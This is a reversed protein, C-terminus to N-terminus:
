KAIGFMIALGQLGLNGSTSTANGVDTWLQGEYGLRATLTGNSYQLGIGVEGISVQGAQNRHDDHTVVGADNLTATQNRSGFLVSGRGNAYFALGGDGVPRQWEAAVTPGFGNFDHNHVLSGIVGSREVQYEQDMQLFRTGGALSLTTRGLLLQRTLDLDIARLLLSHSATLSQGPGTSALIMPTPLGSPSLSPTSIGAGASSVASVTADQDLQFFQLRMGYGNALVVGAIARPAFNFGYAVDRTRARQSPGAAPSVVNLAGAESMTPQIFLFDFGAFITGAGTGFISSPEQTVSQQNATVLPGESQEDLDAARAADGLTAREAM